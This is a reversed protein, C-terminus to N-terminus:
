GSFNKWSVALLGHKLVSWLPLSPCISKHIGPTNLPGQNLPLGGCYIGWVGPGPIPIQPKELSSYPQSLLIIELDLKLVISVVRFMLRLM